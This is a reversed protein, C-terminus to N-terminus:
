AYAEEGHQSMDLGTDEERPSVRIPSFINIVRLLVYSGVFAFGAVIVIGFLQVLVQNPNGYFLGNPGAANIATSAFLGTAFTGLMGGAGHCAFVDLSDDLTTRARWGAVFNCVIGAVLGIIISPMPGVYGSAPTITALACVAGVSIGVASPKRKRMWETFMWGVAGAAAALNTVVLANVAVMDAALASGANFGFWGFWLIAAGLIVYPINNPRENRRVGRRRGIVLAAAAASVGAATHVVLGGAFDVVGMARLFGGVAWVWHAIPAYILTVWLVVFILLSKFRIREAFAGIILAPTIAAFKLQFAFYLLEPIASSYGPNPAYGVNNLGLDALNGIIGGVSAGGLALTYGWLAWVLSIVAFIALCQVITSVLNKLRVLGGYFFGLAPTMIMVLATATIVWAIDGSNFM